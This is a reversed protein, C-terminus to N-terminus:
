EESERKQAPCKNVHEQCRNKDTGFRDGCYGCKYTTQEVRGVTNIDEYSLYDAMEGMNSGGMRLTSSPPQKQWEQICVLDMPLNEKNICLYSAGYIM